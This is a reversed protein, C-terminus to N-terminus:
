SKDEIVKGEGCLELLDTDSMTKVRHEISGSVHVQRISHIDALKALSKTALALAPQPKVDAMQTLGNRAVARLGGEWNADRAAVIAYAKCHLDIADWAAQYNRFLSTGNRGVLGLQHVIDKVPYWNYYMLEIDNQRHDRCILCKKKHNAVMVANPGAVLGVDRLPILQTNEDLNKVLDANDPLMSQKRPKARTSKKPTDM